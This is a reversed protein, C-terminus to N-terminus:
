FDLAVMTKTRVVLHQVFIDKRWAMVDLFYYTGVMRRKSISRVAAAGFSAAALLHAVRLFYCHDTGLDLVVAVVRLDNRSGRLLNSDHHVSSHDLVKGDMHRSRDVNGLVGEAGNQVVFRGRHRGDFPASLMEVATHNDHLALGDCVLAGGLRGKSGSPGRFGHRIQLM